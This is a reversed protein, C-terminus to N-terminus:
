FSVNEFITGGGLLQRILTEDTGVADEPNSDVIASTQMLETLEMDLQEVKPSEYIKKM